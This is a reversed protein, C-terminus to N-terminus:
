PGADGQPRFHYADRNRSQFQKMRTGHFVANTNGSIILMEIALNFRNLTDARARPYREQFSLCRSQSISVHTQKTCRNANRGGSIILMEIALNFRTPRTPPRITVMTRFHYADRNRSQFEHTPPPIRMIRIRFHYADRNRSQFKVYRPQIALLIENLRFHYADRNRSQFKLFIHTIQTGDTRRFHYADRNRSQFVATTRPTPCTARDQFSLCRSQSISVPTSRKQM